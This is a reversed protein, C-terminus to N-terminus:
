PKYDYEDFIKKRASEAYEKKINEATIIDGENVDELIDLLTDRKDFFKMKKAAIKITRTNYGTESKAM